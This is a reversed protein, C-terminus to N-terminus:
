PGLAKRGALDGPGGEPFSGQDMFCGTNEADDATALEYWETAINDYKVVAGSEPRELHSFERLAVQIAPSRSTM